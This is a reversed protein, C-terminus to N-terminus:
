GLEAWMSGAKITVALLVERQPPKLRGKKESIQVYLINEVSREVPNLINSTM